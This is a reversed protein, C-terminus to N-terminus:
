EGAAPPEGVADALPEGAALARAVATDSLRRFKRQQPRTRDLVAAELHAADLPRPDATDGQAALAAVAVAVAEDPGMADTFHEELYEAAADVRGGMVAFRHEDAV